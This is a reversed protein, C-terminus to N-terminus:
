VVPCRGRTGRRLIGREHRRHTKWSCFHMSAGECGGQARCSAQAGGSDSCRREGREDALRLENARLAGPARSLRRRHPGRPARSGPVGVSSATLSLASDRPRLARSGSRLQVLCACDASRTCNETFPRYKRCPCYGALLVSAHHTSFLLYKSVGGGFACFTVSPTFAKGLVEAQCRSRRALTGLVRVGNERCRM